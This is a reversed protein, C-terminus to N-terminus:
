DSDTVALVAISKRDARLAVIGFDWFGDFWPTSDFYYWKCEKAVRHISEISNFDKAGCLGALSEWAKVRGLAGYCGYDDYVGGKAAADFLTGFVRNLSVEYLCVKDEQDLQFSNLDLTNLLAPLSEVNDVTSDLIFVRAEIDSNSEKEWKSVCSKIINIEEEKDCAEYSPVISLEKYPIKNEEIKNLSHFPWIWNTYGDFSYNPLVTESEIDLLTLPLSNYKIKVTYIDDCDKEYISQLGTTTVDKGRLVLEQVLLALLLFLRSKNKFCYHIVVDRIIDVSYVSAIQSAVESISRLSSQEFFSDVVRFLIELAENSPSLALIRLLRSMDNRIVLFKQASLRVEKSIENFKNEQVLKLFRDDM